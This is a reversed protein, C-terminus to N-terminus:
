EVGLRQISLSGNSILINKNGDAKVALEVTDGGALTVGPISLSVQYSDTGSISVARETQNIKTSGNKYLAFTFLGDASQGVLNVEFGLIYKATTLESPTQVWYNTAVDTVIHRAHLESAFLDPNAPTTTAATLVANDLVGIVGHVLTSQVLDRIDQASIVGGVNDALLSNLEALTRITDAM